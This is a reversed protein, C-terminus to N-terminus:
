EEEDDAVFLDYLEREAYEKVERESMWQLLGQVLRSADLLGEDMAELIACTYARAVSEDVEIRPM